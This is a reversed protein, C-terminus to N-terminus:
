FIYRYLNALCVGGITHELLTKDVLRILKIKGFKTHSVSAANLKGLM